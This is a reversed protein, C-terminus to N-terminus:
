NNQKEQHIWDLAEYDTELHLSKGDTTTCSIVVRKRHLDAHGEIEDSIKFHLEPPTM